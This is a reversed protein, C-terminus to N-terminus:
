SRELLKGQLVDAWLTYGHESLHVGDSDFLPNSGPGTNKQFEAALNNTGIMISIWHPPVKETVSERTRRLLGQVTEGAVGANTVQYGPFREQWNFFEVLSDGLFLLKKM